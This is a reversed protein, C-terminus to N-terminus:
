DCLAEIFTRSIWGSSGCQTLIKVRRSDFEADVVLVVALDGTHIRAAVHKAHGGFKDISSWVPIGARPTIVRVLSGPGFKPDDIWMM